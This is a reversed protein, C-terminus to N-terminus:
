VQRIKVVLVFSISQNVACIKYVQFVAARYGIGSSLFAVLHLFFNLINPIFSKCPIEESRIIVCVNALYRYPSSGTM